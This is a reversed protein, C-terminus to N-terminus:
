QYEPTGHVLAWDIAHWRRRALLRLWLAAALLTLESVVIWITATDADPISMASALVVAMTALTLPIEVWGIRKTMMFGLYTTTATALALLPVGLLISRPPLSFYLSIAVHVAALVLLGHANQRWFSRELHAFLEDRSWRARLWLARSRKAAMCAIAGTLAAFLTLYFLWGGPTRVFVAALLFPVLQGLALVWPNATGVLTSVGNDELGRGAPAARFGTPRPLWLRTKLTEFFGRVGTSGESSSQRLRGVWFAIGAWLLFAVAFREVAGTRPGIVAPIALVAIFLMSASLKGFATRSQAVFWLMAYLLTYSLLGGSFVKLNERFPPPTYTAMMATLGLSVLVVCVFGSLLTKLRGHPLAHLRRTMSMQGLVLPLLFTGFFLGTITIVPALGLFVRLALSADPMYGTQLMMGLEPNISFAVLVIALLAASVAMMQRSLATGTFYTWVLRLVAKM